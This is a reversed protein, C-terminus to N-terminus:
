RTLSLHATRVGGRELASGAGGGRTAHRADASREDLRGREDIRRVMTEAEAIRDAHEEERGLLRTTGIFDEFARRGLFSPAPQM